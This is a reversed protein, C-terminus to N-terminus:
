QQWKTSPSFQPESLHLIVVGFKSLESAPSCADQSLETHGDSPWTLSALTSLSSLYSHTRCESEDEGAQGQCKM